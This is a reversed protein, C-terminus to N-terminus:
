GALATEALQEAGKNLADRLEGEAMRSAISALTLAGVLQSTDANPMIEEGEGEEELEPPWPGPWPKPWPPTGCWEEVARSVIAAAEPNGSAEAASAARAIEKAVEVSALQLRKGPPIPQPNLEAATAASIAIHAPGHPFIADFIAPNIHGLKVLLSILSINV